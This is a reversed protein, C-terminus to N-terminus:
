SLLLSLIVGGHGTAHCSRCGSRCRSPSGLLQYPVAVPRSTMVTERTFIRYRGLRRGSM